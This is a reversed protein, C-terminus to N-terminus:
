AGNGDGSGPRRSWWGKRGPRPDDSATTADAPGPELARDLGFATGLDAWDSQPAPERKMWRRFWSPTPRANAM